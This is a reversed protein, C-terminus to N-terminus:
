YIQYDEIKKDELKKKAWEVMCVMLGKQPIYLEMKRLFKDKVYLMRKPEHDRNWGNKVILEPYEKSDIYFVTEEKGFGDDKTEINFDQSDLFRDVVRQYEQFPKPRLKKMLSQFLNETLKQQSYSRVVDRILEKM